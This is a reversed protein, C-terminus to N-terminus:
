KFKIVLVTYCLCFGMKNFGRAVENYKNKVLFSFGHMEIGSMESEKDSNHVSVPVM